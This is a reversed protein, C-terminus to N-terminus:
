QTSSQPAFHIEGRVVTNKIGSKLSGGGGCIAFFGRAYSLGMIPYKVQM